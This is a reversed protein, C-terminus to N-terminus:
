ETQRTLLVVAGDRLAKGREVAAFGVDTAFRADREVLQLALVADADDHQAADIM